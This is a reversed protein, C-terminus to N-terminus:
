RTRQTGKVLKMVTEDLYARLAVESLFEPSTDPIGLFYITLSPGGASGAGAAYFHFERRTLEAFSARASRTEFREPLATRALFERREGTFPDVGDIRLAAYDSGIRAIWVVVQSQDEVPAKLIAWAIAVGRGVFESNAGHLEEAAAASWLLLGLLVGSLWKPANM